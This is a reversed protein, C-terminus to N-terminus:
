GMSAAASTEVVGARTRQNRANAAHTHLAAAATRAEPTNCNMRTFDLAGLLNAWQEASDIPVFWGPRPARSVEAVLTPPPLYDPTSDDFTASEVTLVVFTSGNGDGALSVGVVKVDAPLPHAEIRYHCSEGNSLKLGALISALLELSVSLLRTQM